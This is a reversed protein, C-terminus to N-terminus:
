NLTKALFSAWQSSCGRLCVGFFESCQFSVGLQRPFAEAARFSGPANRKKPFRMLVVAAMDKSSRTMDHRVSAASLMRAKRLRCEPSRCFQEKDAQRGQTGALRAPKSNNFAHATLKRTKTANKWRTLFFLRRLTNELVTSPM